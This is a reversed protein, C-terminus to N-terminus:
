LIHLDAASHGIAHGHPFCLSWIQEMVKLHEPSTQTTRMSSTELSSLLAEHSRPLSDVCHREAKLPSVLCIIGVTVWAFAQSEIMRMQAQGAKDSSNGLTSRIEDDLIDVLHFEKLNCAGFVIVADYM